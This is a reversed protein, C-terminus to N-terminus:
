ELSEETEFHDNESKRIRYEAVVYFLIAVVLLTIIIYLKVAVCMVASLFFAISAGLGQLMRFNSFAVEHDDPCAVHVLSNCQTQWVADCMGWFASMLFVVPTVGKDPVWILLFVMLGIHLIGGLGIIVERPIHKAVFGILISSAINALGLMIMCYGIYEIGLSCTIYSKNYDAYLFGQEFGNFILLPIILRFTKHTCMQRVNACVLEIPKREIEIKAGIKDLCLLALLFGLLALALFVGMLKMVTISAPTMATHTINWVSPISGDCKDYVGCSLLFGNDPVSSNRGPSSTKEHLGGLMVSSILNGWIHTTQFCALFVGNFRYIKHMPVDKSVKAYGIALKQIYIVQSNWALSQGLGVGISTPILTYYHPYINATIWLLYFILGLVIAWKATIRNIVIPAYLCTLVMTLHVFTMSVVGLRGQPNLSSQLNQISRFATFVCLFSVCLIILNKRYKITNLFPVSTTTDDSIITEDEITEVSQQAVPGSRRTGHPSTGQHGDVRPYPPVVISEVIKGDPTVSRVPTEFKVPPEDDFADDISNLDITSKNDSEEHEKITDMELEDSKRTARRYSDKRKKRVMGEIFDFSKDIADNNEHKAAHRYSDNRRGKNEQTAFLYSPRRPRYLSFDFSVGSLDWPSLSM